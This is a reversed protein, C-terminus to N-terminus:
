SGQSSKGGSPSSVKLNVLINVIRNVMKPDVYNMVEGAIRSKMNYLIYAAEKPDSMASIKQGAMEPDMKSFIEALKKYRDSQVEQVERQFEEKEEKLKEREEEIRKLLEQKEELLSELQKKLELLKQIEKQVEKKAVQEQGFAPSLFSLVLVAVLFRM